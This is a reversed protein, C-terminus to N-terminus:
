HTCGSGLRYGKGCFGEWRGRCVRVCVHVIAHARVCECVVVCVRARVCVDALVSDEM